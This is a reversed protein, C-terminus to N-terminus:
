KDGSDCRRGFVFVNLDRRRRRRRRRRCRRITYELWLWAWWVEHGCVHGQRGVVHCKLEVSNM